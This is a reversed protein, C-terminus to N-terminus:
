AALAARTKNMQEAIRDKVASEEMVRLQGEREKRRDRAIELIMDKRQVFSEAAVETLKWIHQADILKGQLTVWRKDTTVEAKIQAETTKPNAEKLKLRHESDLKAELIEFASKIREYQRRANAALSAYYVFLSAHQLMATDLDTMDVKIDDKLKEQDIFVELEM